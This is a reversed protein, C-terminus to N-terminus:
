RKKGETRGDADCNEPQDVYGTDAHPVDELVGTIYQHLHAM